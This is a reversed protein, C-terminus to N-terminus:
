GRRFAREHLERMEAELEPDPGLVPLDPVVAKVSLTRV